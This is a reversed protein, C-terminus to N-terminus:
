EEKRNKNDINNMENNITSGREIDMEVGRKAPNSLTSSAKETIL